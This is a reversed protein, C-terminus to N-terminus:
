TRARHRGIGRGADSRIVMEKYTYSIRFWFSSKVSEPCVSVGVEREREGLPWNRREGDNEDCVIM